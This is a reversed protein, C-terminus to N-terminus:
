NVSLKLSDLFNPSPTKEKKLIITKIAFIDEKNFFYLKEKKTKFIYKNEIEQIFELLIFNIGKKILYLNGEKIDINKNDPYIEIKDILSYNNINEIIKNNLYFPIAELYLFDNKLPIGIEISQTIGNYFDILLKYQMIKKIKDSDNALFIKIDNFKNLTLKEKGNLIKLIYSKLTKEMKYNRLFELRNMLLIKYFYPIREQQTFAFEKEMSLIENDYIRYGKEKEKFAKRYKLSHDTYEQIIDIYTFNIEDKSYCKKKLEKLMTYLYCVKKYFRLKLDEEKSYENYYDKNQEYIEELNSFLEELENKNFLCHPKSILIVTNLITKLTGERLREIDILVKTIDDKKYVNEIDWKKFLPIDVGFPSPVQPKSQEVNKNLYDIYDSLDIKKLNDKNKELLFTLTKSENEFLIQNLLEETIDNEKINSKLLDLIKEKKHNYINFKEWFESELEKGIIKKLNKNLYDKMRNKYEENEKKLEEIKSYFNRFSFNKNINKINKSFFISLYEILNYNKLFKKQYNSKLSEKKEIKENILSNYEKMKKIENNFFILFIDLIESILEDRRNYKFRKLLVNYDDEALNNSYISFRAESSINFFIHEINKLFVKESLKKIRSKDTEFIIFSKKLNKLNLYKLLKFKIKQTKKLNENNESPIIIIEINDNEDIVEGLEQELEKLTKTGFDFFYKIEVKM